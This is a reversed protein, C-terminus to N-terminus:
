YIPLQSAPPLGPLGSLLAMSVIPLASAIFAGHHGESPRQVETGWKYTFAGQPEVRQPESTRVGM